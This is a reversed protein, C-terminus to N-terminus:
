SLKYIKASVDTIFSTLQTGIFVAPNKNYIRLIVKDIIKEKWM